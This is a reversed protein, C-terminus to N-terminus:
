ITSRHGPPLPFSLDDATVNFCNVVGCNTGTGIVSKRNGDLSRSLPTDTIPATPDASTIATNLVFKMKPM